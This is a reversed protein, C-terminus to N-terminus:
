PRKWNCGEETFFCHVAVQVDPEPAPTADVIEDDRNPETHCSFCQTTAGGGGGPKTISFTPHDAPLDNMSLEDGLDTEDDTHGGKCSGSIWCWDDAVEQADVPKPETNWPTCLKKDSGFIDWKECNRAQEQGDIPEPSNCEGFDWGDCGSTGFAPPAATDFDVVAGAGCVCAFVFAGGALMALKMTIM